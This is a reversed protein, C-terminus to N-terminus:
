KKKKKKAKKSHMNGKPVINVSDTGTTQIGEFTECEMTAETSEKTLNLEQTMLHFLMDYDGDHDVDEMNWRLPYAGAFECSVPDVDYADFDDTTLIAVPVKGRSKLNISNPYSGPKIDITVEVTTPIGTIVFNDIYTIDPGGIGTAAAHHLNIAWGTLETITCGTIPFGDDVLVGDYWSYALGNKFDWMMTLNAWGGVVTPTSEAGPEWGFPHTAESVDWQVGFIPTCPGVRKWWWGLNQNTSIRYIDFSVTVQQYSIPLLPNIDINMLSADDFTDGVELRIAQQGIVPDPAKVVTPVIGGGVVVTSWGNQGDLSGTIFSPGEFGNSDYITIFTLGTNASVLLVAIALPFLLIIKSILKLIRKM